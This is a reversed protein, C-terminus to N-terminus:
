IVTLATGFSPRLLLIEGGLSFVLRPLRVQKMICYVLSVTYLPGQIFRFVIWYPIKRHDRYTGITKYLRQVEIFRFRKLSSVPRNQLDCALLFRAYIPFIVRAHTSYVLFLTYFISICMTTHVDNFLSLYFLCFQEICIRVIYTCVICIISYVILVKKKIVTFCDYVLLRVYV